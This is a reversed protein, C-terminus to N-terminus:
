CWPFYPCHRRMAERVADGQVEANGAAEAFTRAHGLLTMIYEELMEITVRGGSLEEELREEHGRAQRILAQRASDAVSTRHEFEFRSAVGDIFRTLDFTGYGDFRWRRGPFRSDIAGDDEGGHGLLTM